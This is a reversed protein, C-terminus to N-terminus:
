VGGVMSYAGIKRGGLVLECLNNKKLFIRVM